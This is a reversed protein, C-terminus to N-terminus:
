HTTKLFDTNFNINFNVNFSAGVHKPATLSDDPLANIRERIITHSCQFM